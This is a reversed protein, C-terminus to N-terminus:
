IIKKLAEIVARSTNIKNKTRSLFKASANKVGALSLIARSTGGAKLGHGESAPKIIVSASSFKAEVEHPISKEKTIPFSILNKKAHRFAKERALAADKGKGLGFGVRGKGDGIVLAARFSFRRGGAVTRVTRALDVLKQQFEQNNEM